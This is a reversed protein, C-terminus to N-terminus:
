LRAHEVDSAGYASDIDVAIFVRGYQPPDMQEGGYVSIAAIEPFQQQLLVKYDDTTVARNRTQYMLPANRRISETTETSDGGQAINETTVTITTYGAISGGPRFVRAGNSDSGVSVRYSAEIVDQHVPQKGIVDGGFVLEYYGDNGLQLFYVLSDNKLDLVSSAQKYQTGNVTVYLSRTDMKSNKLAFRQSVIESNVTFRETVPFGEFIEIGTVQYSGSTALINYAKDTTFTYTRSGVQTIFLTGKPMIIAGPNDDATIQITVVAKASRYSRPTYGLEKAHSVVSSRLQATDLFMESAAMNSLFADQYSNYALLNILMSLNSGEFDYDVFRTQTKLFAKLSAEISDFDPNALLLSTNAM